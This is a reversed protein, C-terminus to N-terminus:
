AALNLGEEIYKRLRPWIVSFRNKGTAVKCDDPIRKALAYASSRNTIVEKNNKDRRIKPKGGLM